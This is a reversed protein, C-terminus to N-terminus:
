QMSTYLRSILQREGGARVTPINVNELFKVNAHGYRVADSWERVPMGCDGGSVGGDGLGSM